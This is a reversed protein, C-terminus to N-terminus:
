GPAEPLCANVARLASRWPFLHPDEGSEAGEVVRIGWERLRQLTQEYVPHATLPSAVSPVVVVPRRDAIAQALIETALTDAIGAVVKNLTTFSAPAVLLARASAAPPDTGSPAHGTCVSRGIRGEVRAVDFLSHASPTTVVSVEWGHAQAALVADPVDRAAPASCVIVCLRPRGPVRATVM